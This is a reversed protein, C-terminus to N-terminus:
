KVIDGTMTELASPLMKLLLQVVENERIYDEYSRVRQTKWFDYQKIDSLISARYPDTGDDDTGDTETLNELEDQDIEMLIVPEGEESIDFLIDAIIEYIYKQTAPSDAIFYGGAAKRDAGTAYYTKGDVLDKLLDQFQVMFYYPEDADSECHVGSFVIFSSDSLVPNEDAASLIYQVADWFRKENLAKASSITMDESFLMHQAPHREMYVRYLTDRDLKEVTERVTKLHLRKRDLLGKEGIYPMVSVVYRHFLGTVYGMEKQTFCAELKEKRTGADDPFLYLM